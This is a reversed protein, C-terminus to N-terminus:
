RRAGNSASEARISARIGAAPDAYLPEVGLVERMKTTDVVRSSSVFALRIPSFERAAQARSIKRPATLGAQRAVEDAFWTASRHDGDGVNYIGPPADEALAAFCCTVLDDVHIRNGPYSEDESLVARGAALREIGLRGPGYIGPVRLIVLGCDNRAAWDLLFSEAAVRPVSMRSGPNVPSEETVVQGDCDGYVGTTSIYVFRAPALPLADIFRQLREDGEGGPPCTYLVAYREPVAVPLTEITDFDVEPRNLGTGDDLRDLVRRGLYGTGAVLTFM